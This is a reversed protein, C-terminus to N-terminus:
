FMYFFGVGGSLDFDTGPYFKFGPAIELFVTIPVGPFRYNMALPFRVGINLKSKGAGVMAGAGYSFDFDGLIRPYVMNYDADVLFYDHQFSWAATIGVFSKSGTYTRLYLGTPEGIKFGAGVASFISVSLVLILVIAIVTKKM